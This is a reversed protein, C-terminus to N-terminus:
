HNENFSANECKKWRKIFAKHFSGIRGGKEDYCHSHTCDDCRIGRKRCIFTVVHYLERAMGLGLDTALKSSGAATFRLLAPCSQGATKMRQNTENKTPVFFSVFGHFRNSFFYISLDTRRGSHGFSGHPPCGGRKARCVADRM